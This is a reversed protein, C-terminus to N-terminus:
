VATRAMDQLMGVVKLYTMEMDAENESLTRVYDDQHSPEPSSTIVSRIMMLSGKLDDEDDFDTALLLDCVAIDTKLVSAIADCTEADVEGSAKARHYGVAKALKMDRIAQIVDRHANSLLSADDIEEIQSRTFQQAIDIASMISPHTIWTYFNLSRHIIRRAFRDAPVERFSEAQPFRRNLVCRAYMASVYRGTSERFIDLHSLDRGDLVGPTLYDFSDPSVKGLDLTVRTIEECSVHKFSSMRLLVSCMRTMVDAYDDADGLVEPDQGKFRRRMRSMSDRVSRIVVVDTDGISCDAGEEDAIRVAERLFPEQARFEQVMWLFRGEDESEQWSLRSLYDRFLSPSVAAESEDFMRIQLDLHEVENEALSTFVRARNIQRVLADVEMRRRTEDKSSDFTISAVECGKRIVLRKLMTIDDPEFLMTM